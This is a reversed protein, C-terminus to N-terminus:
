GAPRPGAGPVARDLAGSARLPWLLGFQQYGVRVRAPTTVQPEPRIIEGVPAQPAVPAERRVAPQLDGAEILRARVRQPQHRAPARDAAPESRLPRYATRMVLQEIRPTPQRRGPRLPRAARGGARAGIGPRAALEPAARPLPTDGLACTTPPDGARRPLGAVRSPHREGARSHQGALCAGAARQRAGDIRVSRASGWASGTSSSSTTRGAAPHRRSARAAAAAVAGRREPPLVPGRSVARRSRRRWTSTPRRWWACTSPSRRARRRGAGGRAGAARAAAQGARM